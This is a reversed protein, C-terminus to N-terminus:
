RTFVKLLQFQLRSNKILASFVKQQFNFKTAFLVRANKRLANQLFFILIYTWFVIENLNLIYNKNIKYGLYNNLNKATTHKKETL